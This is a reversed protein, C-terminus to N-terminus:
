KTGQLYSVPKAELFRTLLKLEWCQILQRIRAGGSTNHESGELSISLVHLTQPNALGATPPCMWKQLRLHEM